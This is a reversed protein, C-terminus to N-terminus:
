TCQLRPLMLDLQVLWSSAGSACGFSRLCLCPWLRPRERRSNSPSQRRVHFSNIIRIAISQLDRCGLRPLAVDAQLGKDQDVVMWCLRKEQSAQQDAVLLVLVSRTDWTEAVVNVVSELRGREADDEWNEARTHAYGSRYRQCMASETGPELQAASVLDLFLQGRFYEPSVHFGPNASPEDGRTTRALRIGTQGSTNDGAGPRWDGM